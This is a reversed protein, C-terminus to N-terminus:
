YVNSVNCLGVDSTRTGYSLENSPFTEVCNGGCMSRGSTSDYIHLPETENYDIHRPGVVAPHHYLRGFFGRSLNNLRHDNSSHHELRISIMRIRIRHITIIMDRIQDGIRGSARSHTSQITMSNNIARTGITPIFQNVEFSGGFIGRNM